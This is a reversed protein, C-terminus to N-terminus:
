KARTKKVKYMEEDAKSLLDDVSDNNEQSYTAYGVSYKIDYGRKAQQNYSDIAKRFRTLLEGITSKDSDNALAIFEDGGIRALVDSDRFVSRM